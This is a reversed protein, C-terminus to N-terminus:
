LGNEQFGVERSNATASTQLPVQEEIYLLYCKYSRENKGKCHALSVMITLRCETPLKPLLILRLM